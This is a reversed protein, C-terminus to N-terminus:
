ALLCKRGHVRAQSCTCARGGIATVFATEQRLSPMLYLFFSTKKSTTSLTLRRTLLLPETTRDSTSPARLIRVKKVPMGSHLSPSFSLTRRHVRAVMDGDAPTSRRHMHADQPHM